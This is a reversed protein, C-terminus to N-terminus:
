NHENFGIPPEPKKKRDRAMNEMLKLSHLFGNVASIIGLILGAWVIWIGLGFRERLWFAGIVFGALPAAVSISLQTLWVMMRLDKM